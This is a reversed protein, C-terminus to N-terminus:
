ACDKSAGRLARVRTLARTLSEEVLALDDGRRQRSLAARCKGSCARQRGRLPVGGIPCSSRVVPSLSVARVGEPQAESERLTGSM